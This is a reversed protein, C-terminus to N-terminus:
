PTPHIPYFVISSTFFQGTQVARRQVIVLWSLIIPLAQLIRAITWFLKVTLYSIPSTVSHSIVTTYAVFTPTFLEKFKITEM